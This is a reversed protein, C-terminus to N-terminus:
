LRKLRADQETRYLEAWAISEFQDTGFESCVLPDDVLVQAVHVYVPWKVIPFLSSDRHRTALLVVDIERDPAGVQKM